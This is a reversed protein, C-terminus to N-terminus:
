CDYCNGSTEDTEEQPSLILLTFLTNRIIDCKSLPQRRLNAAQRRGQKM